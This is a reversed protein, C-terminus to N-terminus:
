NKFSETLQNQMEMLDAFRTSQKLATFEPNLTLFFGRYSSPVSLLKAMTDLALENEGLIAYIRMLGYLIDQGLLHDYELPLIKTGQIGSRIAEEKMGLGAYALGLAMHMRFDTPNQDAKQILDNKAIELYKKSSTKDKNLLHALGKVLSIPEYSLQLEFAEASLKETLRLIKDPRNEFKYQMTLFWAPYNSNPNPLKELLSGAINLDDKQGRAWHIIASILYNWEADPSYKKAREQLELARDFNGTFIYTWSLETLNNINYPDLELGKEMQDIAEEFLGQRRWLEAIRQLLQSDYPRENIIKGYEVLSKDYERSRYYYDALSMVIESDDSNIKRARMICQYASDLTSLHAEYGYWYLDKYTEALGIWALYFDADLITAQQFMRFAARFDEEAGHGPPKVKWGKLFSEYALPNETYKSQM